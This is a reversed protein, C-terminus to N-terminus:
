ILQSLLRSIFLYFLNIKLTMTAGTKRLLFRRGIKLLVEACWGLLCYISTLERKIGM